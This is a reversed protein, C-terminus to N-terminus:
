KAAKGADYGANFIIECVEQRVYATHNHAWKIPLSVEGWQVFSGSANKSTWEEFPTKPAPPLDAPPECPSWHTWHQGILYAHWRLPSVSMDVGGFLWVIQREKPPDNEISRWTTM